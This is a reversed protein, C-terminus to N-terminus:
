KAAPIDKGSTGPWTLVLGVLGAIPFNCIVVFARFGNRMSLDYDFLIGLNV